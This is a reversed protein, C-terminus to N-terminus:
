MNSSQMRTNGRVEPQLWVVVCSQTFIGRKSPSKWHSLIFGAKGIISRWMSPARLSKRTSTSRHTDESHKSILNPIYASCFAKILFITLDISIGRNQCLWPKSSEPQQFTHPQSHTSRNKGDTWQTHTKNLSPIGHHRNCSVKCGAQKGLRKFPDVHKQRSTLDTPPFPKPAPLM